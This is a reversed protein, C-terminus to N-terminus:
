GLFSPSAAWRRLGRALLSPMGRVALMRGVLAGDAVRMTTSVAAARYLADLESHTRRALGDLGHLTHLPTHAAAPDSTKRSALMTM